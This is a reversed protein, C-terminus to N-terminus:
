PAPNSPPQGAKAQALYAASRRDDPWATTVASWAAVADPYRGLEHLTLARQVRLGHDNPREILARDLAVLAAPRDGAERLLMALNIAPAAAAPEVQCAKRMWEIAEDRRNTERLVFALNQMAPVRTPDLELARRLSAEARPFEKVMMAVLGLQYHGDAFDPADRTLAQLEGAAKSFQRMFVYYESLAIRGRLSVTAGTEGGGIYGLSRLKEMMEADVPTATELAKRRAETWAADQYTEISEQTPTTEYAAAAVQGLGDKPIPLGLLNMLTPFVDFISLAPLTTGKRVGPGRLAFLGEMRHWQAATAYDVTAKKEIPRAEGSLFGHDSVLMVHTEPGVKALIEGLLQDFYVYVENVTEGYAAREAETTHPYPPPAYRMYMHGATDTGEFYLALLEPREHALLDLGTRAINTMTAYIQRFHAIPDSFDITTRAEYESQDVRIFREATAFDVDRPSLFLRELRPEIAEPYTVEKQPEEGPLFPHAYMRDSIMVGNVPEAPWTAWWGVVGVTRKRETLIDWFAKARRHQSTIVMPDGTEPEPVTFDVVGHRDPGVGTAVTTWIVPSIVPLMTRLPARVGGELFGKLNPMRGAAILPDILSWDGGDVGILLLKTQKPPACSLGLCLGLTFILRARM